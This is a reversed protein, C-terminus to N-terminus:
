PVLERKELVLLREETEGAAVRYKIDNRVDGIEYALNYIPHEVRISELIGVPIDRLTVIGADDSIQYHRNTSPEEEWASWDTEGRLLREIYDIARWTSTLLRSGGTLNVSHPWTYVKAGVVSEGDVTMLEIRIDGTQEMEFAVESESQQNLLNFTKGNVRGEKTSRIIWGRCIAIVQVEAPGPVSRFEFTGDESIPTSDSWRVPERGGLSADSTMLIDISVSGDVIPRPVNEPLKGFVQKGPRVLINPISVMKESASEFEFLKSFLTGSESPSVLMCMQQGKSICCTKASGPTFVWNPRGYRREVMPFIRDVPTGFDDIASLAVKCGSHLKIKEPINALSIESREAVYDPHSFSIDLTATTLWKGPVGFKVPYRFDITGDNQSQSKQVKGINRSPWRYASGVDELCRLSDVTAKVDAIPQGNADVLLTQISLVEVPYTPEKTDDDAFATASEVVLLLFLFLVIANIQIHM